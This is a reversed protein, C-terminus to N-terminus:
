SIQDYILELWADQGRVLQTHVSLRTWYLQFNHGGDGSINWQDRTPSVSKLHFLHREVRSALTSSPLWGAYKETVTMGPPCFDYEEYGVKTFQGATEKCRVTIGRAVFFSTRSAEKIPEEYLHTSKLVMRQDSEMLQESTALKAVIVVDTLGAEEEVERLVAQELTEDAEVTGAPVQIGATPHKFVLLERQNDKDRTIFASVKHLVTEKVM